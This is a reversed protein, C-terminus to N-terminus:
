RNSGNSNHNIKNLRNRIALLTSFYDVIGSAIIRIEQESYPLGGYPEHAKIFDLVQNNTLEM